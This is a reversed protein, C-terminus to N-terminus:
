IGQGPLRSRMSRITLDYFWDTLDYMHEIQATLTPYYRYAAKGSPTTYKERQLLVNRFTKATGPDTILDGLADAYAQLEDYFDSNWVTANSDTESLSGLYKQARRVGIAPRESYFRAAVFSPLPNGTRSGEYDVQREEFETDDYIARAFIKIMSSGARMIGQITPVIDEEFADILADVDAAAATGESDDRYQYVNLSLPLSPNSDAYQVFTTLEYLM